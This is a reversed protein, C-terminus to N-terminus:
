MVKEATTVAAVQSKCGRFEVFYTMGEQISQTYSHRVVLPRKLIGATRNNKNTKFDTILYHFFEHM